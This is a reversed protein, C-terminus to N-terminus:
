CDARLGYARNEAGRLFPSPADSRPMEHWNLSGIGSGVHFFNWPWLQLADEQTGNGSVKWVPPGVMCHALTGM